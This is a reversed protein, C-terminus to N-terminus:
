ALNGLNGADGSNGFNLISHGDLSKCFGFRRVENQLHNESEQLSTNSCHVFSALGVVRRARQTLLWACNQAFLITPPKSRLSQFWRLSLLLFILVDPEATSIKQL